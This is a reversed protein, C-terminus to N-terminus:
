PLLLTSGRTEGSELAAHARAAERLAYHQRIDVEVQGGAIADFLAEAREVLEERSATYAAITPRTIYLSGRSALEMLGFPPVAGSANGFSVMLGRPALCDLSDEFTAAGIGDYVVPVGRGDTLDRVCGSVPTESRDIVHHCGAKEAAPIKESGGVTGIVTAGLHRAWRALIQGVGGAAAHVLITEGENVRRTGQLLYHATVGKLLSAAAVRDSIAEPLRVLREAPRLVREAYAGLPDLYAVREGVAIHEVGDGVAEVVGAGEMGPVFPPEARYLGSRFYTDIFNLGVATNRVLVEGDGPDRTPVLEWQLNEPGGTRHVVIAHHESM